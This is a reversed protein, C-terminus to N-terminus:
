REILAQNIKGRHVANMHRVFADGVGFYSADCLSKWAARYGAAGAPKEDKEFMSYHQELWVRYPKDALAGERWIYYESWQLDFLARYYEQWDEDIKSATAKARLDRIKLYSDFAKFLADRQDRAGM